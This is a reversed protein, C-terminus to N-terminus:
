QLPGYSDVITVETVVPQDVCRDGLQRQFAKFAALDTLPHHDAAEFTAIHVFTVQDALRYVAYRLGTPASARLENFVARVLLQNEDGRMEETKYRVMTTKM